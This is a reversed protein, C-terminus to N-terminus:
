RLRWDKLCKLVSYIGCIEKEDDIEGTLPATIIVGKGEELGCNLQPAVGGGQPGWFCCIEGIVRQSM